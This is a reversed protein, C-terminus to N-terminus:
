RVWSKLIIKHWQFLHLVNHSMLGVLRFLNSIFSLLVLTLLVLECSSISGISALHHQYNLSGLHVNLASREVKLIYEKSQWTITDISSIKKQPYILMIHWMKRSSKSPVFTMWNTYSKVELIKSALDQKLVLHVELILFM